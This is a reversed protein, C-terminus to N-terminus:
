PIFSSRDIGSGHDFTIPAKSGSGWIGDRRPESLVCAIKKVESILCNCLSMFTGCLRFLQRMLGDPFMSLNKILVSLFCGSIVTFLVVLWTEEGAFKRVTRDGM